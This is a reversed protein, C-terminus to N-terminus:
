VQMEQLEEPQEKFIGLRERTMKEELSQDIEM